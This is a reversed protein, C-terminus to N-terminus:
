CCWCRSQTKKSSDLQKRSFIEHKKAKIVMKLMPVGILKDTNKNYDNLVINANKIYKREINIQTLTEAKEMISTIVKAFNKHWSGFELLKEHYKDDHCDESSINTLYDGPAICVVKVNNIKSLFKINSTKGM